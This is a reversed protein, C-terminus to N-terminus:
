RNKAVNELEEKPVSVGGGVVYSVSGSSLELDLIRM